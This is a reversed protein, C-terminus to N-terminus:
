PGKPTTGPDNNVGALQAHTQAGADANEPEIPNLSHLTLGLRAIRELLGQLHSSDIIPGVIETEGNDARVTM